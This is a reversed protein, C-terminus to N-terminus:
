PSSNCGSLKRVISNLAAEASGTRRCKSWSGGIAVINDTNGSDLQGHRGLLGRAGATKSQPGSMAGPPPMNFVANFARVPAIAGISTAMKTEVEAPQSL